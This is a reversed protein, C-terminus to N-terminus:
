RLLLLVLAGALMSLLACFRIQGDRLALLQTFLRRWGAPSVFPFLGELVLMLGFATWLSGSWDM